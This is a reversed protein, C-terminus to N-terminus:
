EKEILKLINEKIKLKEESSLSERSKRCLKLAKKIRGYEDRCERCERLHKEIEVCCAENVDNDIYGCLNKIVSLCDRNKM